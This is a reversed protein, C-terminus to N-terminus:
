RASWYWAALGAAVLVVLAAAWWRGSGPDDDIPLLDGHASDGSRVDLIAGVSRLEASLAATSQQRRDIEKATARVVIADLDASVDPVSASPAPLPASIVRIITDAPTAAAFASRGTLM